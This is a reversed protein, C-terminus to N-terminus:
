QPMPGRSTHRIYLIEVAAGRIRYTVKYRTKPFVLDRTQRSEDARGIYPMRSLGLIGEYLENIVQHAAEPSRSDLYDHIERLDEAAAPLWLLRM